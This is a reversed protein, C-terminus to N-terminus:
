VSTSERGLPQSTGVPASRQVDTFTLTLSHWSGTPGMHQTSSYTGPQM